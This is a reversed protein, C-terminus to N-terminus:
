RREALLDLADMLSDWMAKRDETTVTADARASPTPPATVVDFSRLPGRTGPAPHVPM